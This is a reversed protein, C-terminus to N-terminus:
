AWCYSFRLWSFSSLYIIDGVKSKAADVIDESCKISQLISSIISISERDKEKNTSAESKTDEDRHVLMSIILYLKRFFTFPTFTLLFSCECYIGSHNVKIRMSVILLTEFEHWLCICHHFLIFWHCSQTCVYPVLCLFTISLSIVSYCIPLFLSSFIKNSNKKQIYFKIIIIKLM